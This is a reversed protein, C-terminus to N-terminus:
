PNRKVANFFDCNKKIANELQARLGKAAIRLDAWAPHSMAKKHDHRLLAAEPLEMLLSLLKAIANRESLSLYTVPWNILATGDDHVDQQIEQAVNFNDMAECQEVADLSLVDVAQMFYFFCNHFSEEVSMPENDM